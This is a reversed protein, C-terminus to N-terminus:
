DCAAMNVALLQIGVDSIWYQFESRDPKSGSEQWKIMTRKRTVWGKDRMNSVASALNENSDPKGYLSMSLGRISCGPLDSIGLLINRQKSTLRGKSRSKSKLRSKSSTAKISQNPKSEGRLKELMDDPVQVLGMEWRVVISPVVNLRKSLQCHWDTPLPEDCQAVFLDYLTFWREIDVLSAVSIEQLTQKSAHRRFHTNEAALRKIESELTAIVKQNREILSSDNGIPVDQPHVQHEILFRFMKGAAASREHENERYISVFLLKLRHRFSDTFM